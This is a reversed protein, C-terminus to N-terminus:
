DQASNLMQAGKMYGGGGFRAFNQFNQENNYSHGKAFVELFKVHNRSSSPIKLLREVKRNKKKCMFPRCSEQNDAEGKIYQQFTTGLNESVSNAAFNDVSFIIFNSFQRPKVHTCGYVCRSFFVSQKIMINGKIQRTIFYIAFSKMGKEFLM